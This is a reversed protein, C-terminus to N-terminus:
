EESAPNQDTFEFSFEKPLTAKIEVRGDKEEGVQLFIDAAMERAFQRSPKKGFDVRLDKGSFTVIRNTKWDTEGTGSLVTSPDVFPRARDNSAEENDFDVPGQTTELHFKNRAVIFGVIASKLEPTVGITASQVGGPKRYDEVTEPATKDLMEALARDSQAGSESLQVKLFDLARLAIDHNSEYDARKKDISFTISRPLEVPAERMESFRSMYMYPFYNCGLKRM